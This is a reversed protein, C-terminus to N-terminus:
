ARVATLTTPLTCTIASQPLLRRTLSIHRPEGDNRRQCGNCLRGYGDCLVPVPMCGSGARCMYLTQKQNNEDRTYREKYPPGPIYANIRAVRMIKRCTDCARYKPRCVNTQRRCFPSKLKLNGKQLVLPM